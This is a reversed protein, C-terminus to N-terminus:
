MDRRKVAKLKPFMIEEVAAENGLKGLLTTGIARM